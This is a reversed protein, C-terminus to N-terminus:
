AIPEDDATPGNMQSATEADFGKRAACGLSPVAGRQRTSTATVIAPPHEAGARTSDDGLRSSAM